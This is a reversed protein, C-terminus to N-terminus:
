IKLQLNEKKQNWKYNKKVFDIIADLKEQKSSINEISEQELEKKALKESQKIYKGFQGDTILESCLKEWTTMIDVYKGSTFSYYSSLQFDIKKINDNVSTIFVEDKFAPVDKLIFKYVMDNYENNSVKSAIGFRRGIGKEEYSDFVDFNRIGQAIYQYNYIAMMKVIYESHMTPIDSQFYWDALNFIFPSELRYKYEIVSGEKVNPFAFKKVGWNKDVKEDYIHDPNLKSSVMKGNELNYTVAQIDKVLETQQGDRYYPIEIEAYKLGSEKFIKIRKIRKFHVVYRRDEEVFESNGKDFLIVADADKDKKYYKMELESNRFATKENQQANTTFHILFILLTASYILLTKM